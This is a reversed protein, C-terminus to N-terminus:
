KYVYSSCMTSISIYNTHKNNHIQKENDKVELQELEETLRKIEAIIEVKTKPKRKPKTDLKYEIDKLKHYTCTNNSTVHFTLDNMKKYLVQNDLVLWVIGAALVVVFCTLVIEFPTM